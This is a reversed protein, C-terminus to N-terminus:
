ARSEVCVHKPLPGNNYAYFPQEHERGQEDIRAFRSWAHSLPDDNDDLIRGVASLPHCDRGRNRFVPFHEAMGEARCIDLISDKAVNVTELNHQLWGKGDKVARPTDGLPSMAVDVRHCLADRKEAEHKDAWESGDNAQYKILTKM